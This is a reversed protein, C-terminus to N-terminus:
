ENDFSCLTYKKKYPITICIFTLFKIFVFNQYADLIPHRLYLNKVKHNSDENEVTSDYEFKNDNLNKEIM